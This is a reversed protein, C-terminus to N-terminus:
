IGDSGWDCKAGCYIGYDFLGLYAGSSADIKAEIKHRAQGAVGVSSIIITGPKDATGYPSIKRGGNYAVIAYNIYKGSTATAGPVPTGEGRIRNAETPDIVGKAIQSRIKIHCQSSSICLNIKSIDMPPNASNTNTHEEVLQSEATKLVDVLRVNLATFGSQTVGSLYPKSFYIQLKTLGPGIPSLYPTLDIDTTDDINMKQSLSSESGVSLSSASVSLEYSAEPPRLGNRDTVYKTEKISWFDPMKSAAKAYKYRLLGDDVGSLAARYAIKGDRAQGALRTHQTTLVAVGVSSTMLVMGIIIAILLASSKVKDKM